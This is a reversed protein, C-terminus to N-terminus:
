GAHAHRRHAAAHKNMTVPAAPAPPVEAAAAAEIPFLPLPGNPDTAVYTFGGGILLGPVMLLWTPIRWSRAAAPVPQAERATGGVMYDELSPVKGAYLDSEEFMTM